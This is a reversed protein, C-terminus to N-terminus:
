REIGLPRRLACLAKANLADQVPEGMLSWTVKPEPAPVEPARAVRAVFAFSVDAAKTAKGGAFIMRGRVEYQDVLLGERKSVREMFAANELAHTLKEWSAAPVPANGCRGDSQLASVAQSIADRAMQELDASQLATGTTLDVRRLAQRQGEIVADLGGGTRTASFAAAGAANAAVIRQDRREVLYQAGAQGAKDSTPLPFAVVLMGGDGEHIKLVTKPGLYDGAFDSAAAPGRSCGGALATFVLVPSAWKM